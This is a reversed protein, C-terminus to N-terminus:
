CIHRSTITEFEKFLELVKRQKPDLQSILASQDSSGESKAQIWVNLFM